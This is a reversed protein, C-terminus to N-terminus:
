RCPPVTGLWRAARVQKIALNALPEPYAIHALGRRVLHLFIRLAHETVEAVLEDLLGRGVGRFAQKARHEVEPLMQEFRTQFAALPGWQASNTGFAVM